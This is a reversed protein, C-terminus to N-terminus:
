DTSFPGALVSGREEPPLANMMAQLREAEDEMGVWRLKLVLRSWEHATELTKVAEHAAPQRQEM